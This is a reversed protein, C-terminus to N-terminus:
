VLRAGRGPSARLVTAEPLLALLAESLGAESEPLCLCHANAGADITYCAALGRSRLARIEHMLQVTQPLWFHLPPQSTMMVAHMLDSDNEVIEALRAFDRSRVAERCAALRRPADSVRAAQLPSSDAISHGETSGTQKAEDSVIVILDVIQWHDAPALPQGISGSDTGDAILEVFGGFISRAASGSGQRALRSLERRELRLGAAHSAAVTLAAFAAASSAIGAGMPFNSESTVEAPTDIGARGRILDLHLSARRVMDPDASRGNISLRDHQLDSSLRVSIQSELGGLTMSLSGNAPIRLSQDTNGWYKILAINPHAIATAQNM